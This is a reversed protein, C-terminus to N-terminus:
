EQILNLLTDLVTPDSPRKAEQDVFVGKKNIIMYRPIGRIGFKKVIKSNWGGPSHAQFGQMGMKEVAGKWGKETDDISIYLFVIKDKEKKSLKSYLNEKLTKAHPFQARCPGCWSAWFDVYVVKGKFDDFHVPNGELDVMVTERDSNKSEKKAEAVEEIPDEELMKQACMEKIKPAFRKETDVEELHNYIWRVTSPKVREYNEMLYKSLFFSLPLGELNQRAYVYKSEVSNSYDNFKKFENVESTKYVSYYEVFYRYWDNIMANDDNVWDENMVKTMVRPLPDVEKKTTNHNGNIIPYAYLNGLYNYRIQNQLYKQFNKSHEFKDFNDELYKTQEQNLDYIEMEFVDLIEEKMKKEMGFIDLNDKYKKNFDFFLKNNAGGQGTFDVEDLFNDKSFKLDIQDGPEVFLPIKDKNVVLEVLMAQEQEIEFKFEGDGLDQKQKQLNLDLFSNDIVLRITDEPGVNEISGSITSQSFLFNIGLTLILTTSLLLRNM